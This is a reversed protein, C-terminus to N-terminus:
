FLDASVKPSKQDREQFDQTMTTVTLGDPGRGPSSKWHTEYLHQLTCLHSLKNGNPLSPIFINILQDTQNSYFNNGTSFQKTDCVLVTECAHYIIHFLILNM